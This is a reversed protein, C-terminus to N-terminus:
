RHRDAQSSGYRRRRPAASGFHPQRLYDSGTRPPSRQGPDSDRIRITRSWAVRRAKFCTSRGGGGAHPLRTTNCTGPGKACSYRKGPGPRTTANGKDFSTSVLRMRQMHQRQMGDGHRTRLLRRRWARTPYWRRSAGIPNTQSHAARRACRRATDNSQFVPCGLALGMALGSQWMALARASWTSGLGLGLELGPLM